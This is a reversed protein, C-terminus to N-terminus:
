SPKRERKLLEAKREVGWRYGSLSGDTRVVRHCPIAVAILNAACAAAVARASQPAGIREAIETYSATSGVPIERLAQWVRQQFATGQIDLPLDLGLAPTEVLQVVQAVWSEFDPEAVRLSGRPFRRQLEEVLIAADNGIMVCCLGQETAAVLVQGLSSQGFAYRIAKGEGGSRYATPTMGLIKTSSAYFHGNSQFGAQYIAETVTESRSLAERVQRARFAKAYANPTLGTVSKFVRLFHFRSLGAGAALAALTVAEPQAEISRCAKLVLEARQQGLSPQDPRCRKCARFGAEEADSRTRYFHIHERRARRSPCSPRCYVGTTNVSYYFSGDFTADRQCVAEWCADLAPLMIGPPEAQDSRGAGM